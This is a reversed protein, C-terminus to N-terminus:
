QEDLIEGIAEMTEQDLTKGAAKVNEEIQEPRSAGIIVSSIEPHTLIWALSLQALSMGLDSAVAELKEVKTLVEDTLLRSVGGAQM